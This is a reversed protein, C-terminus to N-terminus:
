KLDGIAHYVENMFFGENMRYKIKREMHDWKYEEEWPLFGYAEVESKYRFIGAYLGGILHIPNFYNIIKGKNEFEQAELVMFRSIRNERLFEWHHPSLIFPSPGREEEEIEEEEEEENPSVRKVIKGEEDFYLDKAKGKEEKENMQQTIRRQKELLSPRDVKKWHKLTRRIFESEEKRSSALMPRNEELEPLYEVEIDPYEEKFFRQLSAIYEEEQEIREMPREFVGYKLYQLFRLSKIILLEKGSDPASRLEDALLERAYEPHEINEKKLYETLLEDSKSSDKQAEKDLAATLLIRPDDNRKDLLHDLFEQHSVGTDAKGLEEWEEPPDLERGEPFAAELSDLISKESSNAKPGLAQHLFPTGRMKPNLYLYRRLAEALKAELDRDSPDLAHFRFGRLVAEFHKGNKWLERFTECRAHKRMEKFRASDILHTSGLKEQKKRSKKLFAIREENGPHTSYPNQEGEESRDAGIFTFEKGSKELAEQIELYGEFKQFLSISSELSYGTREILRSLVSDAQSEQDRTYSAVELVRQLRYISERGKRRRKPDLNEFFRDESHKYMDHGIEHALISALEAENELEALLGVNITLLGNYRSHANKVASRVLHVEVKPHNTDNPMLRELVENLYSTEEELHPYLKGGIYLDRRGQAVIEAFLRKTKNKAERDKLSSTNLLSDIVNPAKMRQPIEPLKKNSSFSCGDSGQSHARFQLGVMLISSFIFVRILFSGGM